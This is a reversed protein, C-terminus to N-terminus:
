LGLSLYWKRERQILEHTLNWPVPFDVGMVTLLLQGSVRVTARDGDATVLTYDMDRFEWSVGNILSSIFDADIDLESLMEDGLLDFVLDLMSPVSELTAASVGEAPDILTAAAALDRANLYAYFDRVVDVPSVLVRRTLAYGGVAVAVVVAAALLGLGVKSAVFSRRASPSPPMWEPDYLDGADIFPDSYEDGYPDDVM